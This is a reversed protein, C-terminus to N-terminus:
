RDILYFASDFKFSKYVTCSRKMISELSEGYTICVRSFKLFIFLSPSLNYTYSFLYRVFIFNVFNM